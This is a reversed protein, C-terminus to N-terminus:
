LSLAGIKKKKREKHAKALPLSVAERGRTHSGVVGACGAGADDAELAITQM